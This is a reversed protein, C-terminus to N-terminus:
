SWAARMVMGATILGYISSIVALLPWNPHRVQLGREVRRRDWLAVLALIVILALTTLHIETVLTLHGTDGISTDAARMNLLVVFLVGVLLALKSAM